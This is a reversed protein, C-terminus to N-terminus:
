QHLIAVLPVLVFAWGLLSLGLAALLAPGPPLRDGGAKAPEGVAYDQYSASSELMKWFMPTATQGPIYTLDRFLCCVDNPM